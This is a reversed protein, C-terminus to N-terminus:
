IRVYEREFSITRNAAELRSSLKAVKQELESKDGGLGSTIEETQIPITRSSIPPNRPVIPINAYEGLITSTPPPPQPQTPPTSAAKSDSLAKLTHFQAALDHLRAQALKLEKRATNREQRMQSWKERWNSTCDSWWRMTKEMQAARAKAEM